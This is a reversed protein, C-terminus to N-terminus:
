QAQFHLRELMAHFTSLQDDFDRKTNSYGLLMYARVRISGNVFELTQLLPIPLLVLESTTRPADPDLQLQDLNVSDFTVAHGIFGAVRVQRSEVIKTAYRQKDIFGGQFGVASGSLDNVYTELLTQPTKHRMSLPVAMRRVWIAARTNHSMFLDFVTTSVTEAKGDDSEWQFSARQVGGTKRKTPVGDKYVFNAVTWEPGLLDDSSSDYAIGYHSEPVVFGTTNFHPSATGGCGLLLFVFPAVSRLM